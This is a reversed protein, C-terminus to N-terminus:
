QGGGADPKNSGLGTELWKEAKSIDQFAKGWAGRNSLVKEGFLHQEAYDLGPDVFAIKPGFRYTEAIHEGIRFTEMTSLQGTVHYLVLVKCLDLAKCKERFSDWMEIASELSAEGNVVALIHDEKVEIQIKYSM